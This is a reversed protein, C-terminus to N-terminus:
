FLRWGWKAYLARGKVVLGTRPRFKAWLRKIRRSKITHRMANLRETQVELPNIPLRVASCAVSPTIAPSPLENRHLWEVFNDYLAGYRRNINEIDITEYIARLNFPLGSGRPYYPIGLFKCTEASRMDINTVIAPRGANLAMIAGHLRTGIVFNVHNAIDDRWADMDAYLAINGRKIAASLSDMYPKRILDGCSAYDEKLLADTFYVIKAPIVESQLFYRLRQRDPHSFFGTAGVDLADSWPRHPICRNPGREFYSPCGTIHYNHIGLEDLISATFAGRIGIVACKKSLMALFRRKAPSLNKALSVGSTNNAGLSYAIIPLHLRELADCAHVYFRDEFDLRIHDQLTFFVHSFEANIREAEAPDLPAAYLNGHSTKRNLYESNKGMLRLMAYTIYSNGTNTSVASFFATSDSIVSGPPYLNANLFYPIM